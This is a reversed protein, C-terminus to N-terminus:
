GDGASGTSSWDGRQPCTRWRDGEQERWTTQQLARGPHRLATQGFWVPMEGERPALQARSEAGRSLEGRQGTSVWM